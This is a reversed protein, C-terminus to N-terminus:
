YLWRRPDRWFPTYYGSRKHQECGRLGLTCLWDERSMALYGQLGRSRALKREWDAFQPLKM